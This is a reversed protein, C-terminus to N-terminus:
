QFVIVSVAAVTQRSAARAKAPGAKDAVDGAVGAPDGPEEHAAAERDHKGMRSRQFKIKRKFKFKFKQKHRFSKPNIFDALIARNV